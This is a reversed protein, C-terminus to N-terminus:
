ITIGKGNLLEKMLNTAKDLGNDKVYDSIDKSNNEPILISELSYQTAIKASGIKGAEDNDYFIVIKTFRSSLEKMVKVPISHNEGQPAIANYGLKYLTMVDKLAKTIILLDGQYPLQEYGQIDYMSCNSIWKYKKESLPKYIKYKNFVQYAYGPNTYKYAWPQVIGNIWYDYIPFVNFTKLIDRNIGYQNWYLDDGQTFNKRRVALVTSVPKYEEKITIGKTSITLNHKVLDGVIKIIADRYSISFLEKVFTVCNGSLGSSLDKFLLSGSKSSKFIGFSPNKDQRFPSTMVRGVSFAEGIYYRYIDYETVKELIFDLSLDIDTLRTDYM